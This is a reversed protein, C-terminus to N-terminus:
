LIAIVDMVIVHYYTAALNLIDQTTDKTSWDYKYPPTGGSVTLDISGDKAGFCSVNYTNPYVYATLSIALRDMPNLCETGKQKPDNNGAKVGQITTTMCIIVIVLMLSKYIASFNLITKNTKM